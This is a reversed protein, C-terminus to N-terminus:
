QAARQQPVYQPSTLAKLFAVLDAKQPEELNLPRIGGSQYDNVPDVDEVKGGKNYFEVVDELKALSGDHMYPGTVEVNRLTPTKFAGLDTWQDDVAFRGLESAKADALVADDVKVGRRKADSFAFAYRRTDSGIRQFGVNLNHFRNDSFLADNQSIVHCSVCRGQGIFVKYGRQAADSMATKDGGFYWRDFPSNGAVITREFSAMAKSIETLGVADGQKGFAQTFLAQYEPDSRVIKLMPAYDEPLGMEIPNILPQTAQRELTPERGDWFMREFFAANIVTPANRTGRSKHIGESTKLPSDTFAKNPDHCTACSVDGTASFRKDNFLKDGLRVKVATQPNDAPVPLPPLGLSSPSPADAGCVWPSLLMAALLMQTNVM